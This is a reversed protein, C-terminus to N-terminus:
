AEDFAENVLVGILIPLWLLALMSALLSFGIRRLSCWLVLAILLYGVVLGTM